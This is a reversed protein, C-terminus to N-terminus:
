FDTRAEFRSSLKMTETNQGATLHEIDRRLVYTAESVVHCALMGVEDHRRKSICLLFLMAVLGGPGYLQYDPRLTAIITCRERTGGCAVDQSNEFGTPGSQKKPRGPLTATRAMHGHVTNPAHPIEKALAFPELDPQHVNFAHVQTVWDLM